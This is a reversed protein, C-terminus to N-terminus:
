AREERRQEIVTERLSKKLKTKGLDKHLKELDMLLARRSIEPAEEERIPVIKAVPKQHSTVIVVQGNQVDHIYQSLKDKLEKISAAAM